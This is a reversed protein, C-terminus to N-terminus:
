REEETFAAEWHPCTACEDETVPRRVTTGTPRVCVWLSAPHESDEVGRPLYGPRSWRCDWITQMVMTTTRAM